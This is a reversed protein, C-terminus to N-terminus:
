AALGSAWKRAADLVPETHGDELMALPAVGHLEPMPTVIWSALTWRSVLSEPVVDLLEGLGQLVSRGQFQFTPYVVNGSGTRLALLDKRKSVAQRSLMRAPRPLATRRLVFGVAKADYFPGLHEGWLQQTGIVLEAAHRGVEESLTAGPSSIYLDTLHREFSRVTQEIQPQTESM